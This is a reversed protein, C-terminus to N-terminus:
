CLYLVASSTRKGEGTECARHLFRILCHISSDRAIIIITMLPLPPFRVDICREGLALSRLSLNCVGHRQRRYSLWEGGTWSRGSFLVIVEHMTLPRIASIAGRHAQLYVFARLPEIAKHSARASPAQPTPSDWSSPQQGIFMIFLATDFCTKSPCCLGIDPLARNHLRGNTKHKTEFIGLGSHLSWVLDLKMLLKRRCDYPIKSLGDTSDVKATPIPSRRAQRSGFLWSFEIWVSTTQSPGCVSDGM